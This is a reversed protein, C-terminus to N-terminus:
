NDALSEGFAAGKVVTGSVVGSEALLGAATIDYGNIIPHAAGKTLSGTAYTEAIAEETFRLFQSNAYGSAGVQARIKQFLNAAPSFFRHVLEHNLVSTLENGKLGNQIIINGVPDTSGLVGYPLEGFRWVKHKWPRPISIRSFGRAARSLAAGLSGFLGLAADASDGLADSGTLEGLGRATYSRDEAGSVLQRLGSFASDVGHAAVVAGAVGGIGTWSTGLVLGGGAITEGVGGLTKVGGWFRSANSPPEIPEM